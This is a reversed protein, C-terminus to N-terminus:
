HSLVARPDRSDDCFYYDDFIDPNNEFEGMELVVFDPNAIFPTASNFM